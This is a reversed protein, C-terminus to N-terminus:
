AKLLGPWPKWYNLVAGIAGLNKDNWNKDKGKMAELPPHFGAIRLEAKTRPQLGAVLM